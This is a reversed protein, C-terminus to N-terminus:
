AEDEEEDRKGREIVEPEQLEEEAAEAEEAGEEEEEEDRRVTPPVVMIVPRDSETVIRVDGEAVLDSTHVIDHIGLSSVDYVIREPIETPLCEVEVEHLLHELIGGDNRVGAATGVVEVPVAVVIKQTLSIRHFDVHLIHGGVPHRQIEKILTAHGDGNEMTLNIIANRGHEHLLTVFAKQDVSCAVSSAKEGYVVAPLTGRHRMAKVVQKGVQTRRKAQLLVTGEAM